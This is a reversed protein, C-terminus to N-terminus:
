TLFLVGYYANLVLLHKFHRTGSRLLIAGLHYLFIPIGRVPSRSNICSLSTCHSAIFPLLYVQVYFSALNDAPTFMECSSSFYIRKCNHHTSSPSKSVKAFRDSVRENMTIKRKCNTLIFCVCFVCWKLLKKVVKHIWLMAPSVALIYLIPLKSCLFLVVFYM